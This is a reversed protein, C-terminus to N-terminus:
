MKARERRMIELMADVEYAYQKGDSCNCVCPYKRATTKFSVFKFFKGNHSFAFGFDEPKFGYYVAHKEFNFQEASKEATETRFSVVVDTTIDDYKINTAIAKTGYKAAIPALAAEIEQRLTAFENENMIM